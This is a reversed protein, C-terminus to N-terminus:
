FFLLQKKDESDTASLFVKLMLDVAWHISVDKADVERLSVFNDLPQHLANVQFNSSDKVLQSPFKSSLVAIMQEAHFSDLALHDTEMTPDQEWFASAFKVDLIRLVTCDVMQFVDLHMNITDKELETIQSNLTKAADLATAHFSDEASNNTSHTQVLEM